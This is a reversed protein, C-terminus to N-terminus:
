KKQFFGTISAQKTAKNAAAPAKKQSKEKVKKEEDKRSLPQKLSSSDESPQTAAKSEDESESYSESEYGKETVICGEDDLFTRSKLVRRRKRKKGESSQSFPEEKVHKEPSPTQLGPAPPSDPIVEDDSSDPQPKKIRRRKKKQSEVREEESDSHELRKTKSRTEKPDDKIVETEKPLEEKIDQKPKPSSEKTSGAASSTPAGDAKEKINKDPKELKKDAAKGFFNNMTSAKSPAKTKPREAPSPDDIQEVKVEKSQAESKPATKSSFMGMIGKPQKSTSKSAPATYNNVVPKNAEKDSATSMAKEQARQLEATSMQVAAACRIASYKTCNKLNEKMADYDTSYLPASDKLEAKQVSYVHVSITVDLKSKVDELKDERVVSVKHCMSGNELCKGSVLYTAHLNGSREKRRQEIYHYLMQKATNVHVGLTLSLWKYTVIKNQDNVYEDINDLYLDDM